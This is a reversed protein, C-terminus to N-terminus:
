IHYRDAAKLSSCNAASTGTASCWRTFTSGGRWLYARATRGTGSCSMSARASHATASKGCKRGWSRSSSWNFLPRGNCHPLFPSAKLSPTLIRWQRRCWGLSVEGQLATSDAAAKSVVFISPSGAVEFDYPSEAEAGGKLLLSIKGTTVGVPVVARM